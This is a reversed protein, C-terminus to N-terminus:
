FFPSQVHPFPGPFLGQYFDELDQGGPRQGPSRPLSWPRSWPHAVQGQAWFPWLSPKMSQQQWSSVRLLIKVLAGVSESQVPSQRTQPPGQSLFGLNKSGRPVTTVTVISSLSIACGLLLESWLSHAHALSEVCVRELDGWPGMKSIIIRLSPSLLWLKGKDLVSQIGIM